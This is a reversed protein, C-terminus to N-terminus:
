IMFYCGDLSIHTCDAFTTADVSLVGDTGIQLGGAGKDYWISMRKISTPRAESPLTGINVSTGKKIYGKLHVIKDEALLYSSSDNNAVNAWYDTKTIGQWKNINPNNDTSITRENSLKVYRWGNQYTIAYTGPQSLTFAKTWNSNNIIIPNVYWSTTLYFISGNYNKSEPITLIVQGLDSQVGVVSLNEDLTYSGNAYAKYGSTIFTNRFFSGIGDKNTGELKYKAWVIGQPIIYINHSCDDAEKIFYGGVHEFRPAVIMNSYAYKLNLGDEKVWEFGINYFKNNDFSSISSVGNPIMDVGRQGILRGGYFQNENVWGNEYGAEASLELLLTDRSNEILQWSFKNYQNGNNSSTFVAAKGFGDVNDVTINAHYCDHVNLGYGNYVSEDLYNKNEEGEVYPLDKKIRDIKVTVRNLNSLKVGNVRENPVIFGGNIIIKCFNPVNIVLNKVKYFGTATLIDGQKMKSFIDYFIATNDFFPDEEITKAGFTDPTYTTIQQLQRNTDQELKRIREGATESGDRIDVLEPDKNPNLDQALIQERYKEQVALTTEAAEKSRENSEDALSASLMLGEAMGNTKDKLYNEKTFFDVIQKIQDKASM